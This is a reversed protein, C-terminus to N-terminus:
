SANRQPKKRVHPAEVFRVEEPMRWLSLVYSLPAFTIFIKQYKFEILSPLLHAVTVLNFYKPEWDWIDAGM